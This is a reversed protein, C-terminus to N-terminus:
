ERALLEALRDYSSAIVYEMGSDIVADRIAQSPYLVTSTLVTIGGIEVLVTTVRSETSGQADCGEIVETHVLREPVAVDRYVGSMVMEAGDPGHMVHRYTGGPRLDVQCEDLSWWCPGFWQKLLEPNTLADFVLRRPSNLVRTLVLEREGSTTVSLTEPNTTMINEEM